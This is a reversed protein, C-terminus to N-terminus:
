PARQQQAKVAEERVLSWVEDVKDVFAKSRHVDPDDKDFATDVVKFLMEAKQLDSRTAYEPTALM